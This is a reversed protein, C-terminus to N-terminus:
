FVLNRTLFSIKRRYPLSDPGTLSVPQKHCEHCYNCRFIIANLDRSLLRKIIVNVDPIAPSNKAGENTQTENNKKKANLYSTKWISSHPEYYIFFTENGEFKNLRSFQKRDILHTSIFTGPFIYPFTPDRSSKAKNLM